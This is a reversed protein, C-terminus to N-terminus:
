GLASRESGASGKRGGGESSRQQATPMSAAQSCTRTARDQPPQTPKGMQTNSPGHWNHARHQYKVMMLSPSLTYFSVKAAWRLEAYAAPLESSHRASHPAICMRGDLTTKGALRIGPLHSDRATPALDVVSALASPLAPRFPDQVCWCTWWTRTEVYPLAVGPRRELTPRM